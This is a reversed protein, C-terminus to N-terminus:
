GVEALTDPHRAGILSYRRREAQDTFLLMVQSCAEGFTVIGKPSSQMNAHSGGLM